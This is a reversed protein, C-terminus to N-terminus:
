ALNGIAYFILLRCLYLRSFSIVEYVDGNAYNMKGQGHPVHIGPIGEPNEMDLTGVSNNDDVDMHHYPGKHRGDYWSERTRPRSVSSAKTEDAGGIFSDTADVGSVNIEDESEPRPKFKMVEGFYVDGNGYRITKQKLHNLKNQEEEDLIRMGDIHQHAKLVIRRIRKYITIPEDVFGARSPDRSATTIMFTADFSALFGEPLVSLARNAVSNKGYNKNGYTVQSHNSSGSQHGGSMTGTVTLAGGVTMTKCGGFVLLGVLIREHEDMLQDERQSVFDQDYVLGIASGYISEGHSEASSLLAKLLPPSMNKMNVSPHFSKLHLKHHNKEEETASGEGLAHPSTDGSNSGSGGTLTAALKNTTSDFVLSFTNYEILSLTGKTSLGGFITFEYHKQSQSSQDLHQDEPPHGHPHYFVNPSRVHFANHKCRPLVVVSSSSSYTVKMWTAVNTKLPVVPDNKSAKGGKAPKTEVVPPAVEPVHYEANLVETLDLIWMDNLMHKGETEGGFIVLFAQNPNSPNPTVLTATHYARPPPTAGNTDVDVQKMMYKVKKSLHNPRPSQSGDSPGVELKEEVARFLYVSNTYVGGIASGNVAHQYGGFLVVCDQEKGCTTASLGVTSASKAVHQHEELSLVNSKYGFTGKRVRIVDLCAELATGNGVKSVGGFLFVEDRITASAHYARNFLGNSVIVSPSWTATPVHLVRVQLYTSAKQQSLPLKKMSSQTKQSSTPLPLTSNDISNSFASLGVSRSDLPHQNQQAINQFPSVNTSPIASPFHEFGGSLMFNEGIRTAAVGLLSPSNPIVTFLDLEM